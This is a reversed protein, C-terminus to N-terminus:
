DAVTEIEVTLDSTGAYTPTGRTVLYGVLSQSSTCNVPVIISQTQSMGNASFSKHTTIPILATITLLETNSPNFATKDTQAAPTANFLVLDTDIGQKSKDYLKVSLIQAKNTRYLCANAFTLLGGVTNGSAYASASTVTPTAQIFRTEIPGAHAISPILIAFIILIRKM